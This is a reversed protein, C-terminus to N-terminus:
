QNFFETLDCSCDDKRKLLEKELENYDYEREHFNKFDNKNIKSSKEKCNDDYGNKICSLMWGTSNSVDNQKMLLNYAKEIKEFDYKAEKCIVRVDKTSFGKLLMKVDIIFDVKDDETMENKQVLNNAIIDVNRGTLDVIFEVGYVKAGRGGKLPSFTVKMDTKSNIEKIAVDLVGRKFEYWTNFKKEPSKEVARDFNPAQKNNLEKRVSDLEANVVGMNLKLESLNFEIKFVQTKLEKPIGKRYYSKSSLLEYLRFSYVNKFKLMTPLELVTFNAKFDSLYEKVDSNYFISFVGNEYRARDVVSIYDFVGGNKNPDSFGITRSTMNIAVPELQSYFSGANANLLKRLENATMNCVIRGNKDEVYEKKQIKALSIATIKNELLSSAYKASILYNSKSYKNDKYPVNKETYKDSM